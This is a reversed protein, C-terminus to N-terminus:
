FELIMATPSVKLDIMSTENLERKCENAKHIEISGSIWLTSSSCLFVIGAIIAGRTGNYDITENTKLNRSIQNKLSGYGAGVCIAGSVTFLSAVTLCPNGIGRYRIENTKLKNIEKKSKNNESSQQIVITQSQQEAKIGLVKERMARYEQETIVGDVFLKKINNLELKLSDTVGSNSQSFCNVSVLLVILIILNKM